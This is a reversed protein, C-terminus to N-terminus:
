DFPKHSDRLFLTAFKLTRIMPIQFFCNKIYYLRHRIITRLFVTANDQPSRPIRYKIIRSPSLFFRSPSPGSPNKRTPLAQAGSTLPKSQCPNLFLLLLPIPFKISICGNVPLFLMTVYTISLSFNLDSTM